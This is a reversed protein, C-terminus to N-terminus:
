KREEYIYNDVEVMLDNIKTISKDNKYMDFINQFSVGREVIGIFDPIMNSFIREKLQDRFQSVYDERIATRHQRHTSIFIRYDIFDKSLPTLIKISNLIEALGKFSYPEPVIPCFIYNALLVGLRSFANLSPPCDFIVVSYKKFVPYFDEKMQILISTDITDKRSLKIDAPIIDINENYKKIIKSLPTKNEIYEYLSLGNNLTDFDFFTQSITGQQDLDVILIKDNQKEFYDACIVSSSTKGCGGKQNFFTLVTPVTKLIERKNVLLRGKDDEYKTLRKEDIWNRVTNESLNALNSAEKVPLLTM